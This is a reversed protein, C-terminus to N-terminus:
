NGTEADLLKSLQCLHTMVLQTEKLSHATECDGSFCNKPIISVDHSSAEMKFDNDFALSLILLLIMM